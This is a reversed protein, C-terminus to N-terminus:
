GRQHHDGTARRHDEEVRGAGRTGRDARRGHHDEGPHTRPRNVYDIAEQGTMGLADAQDIMQQRMTDYRPRIQDMTQGQKLLAQVMAQVNGAQSAMTNLNTRGSEDFATMGTKGEKLAKAITDIGEEYAITAEQLSIFRGNLLDLSDILKDVETRATKAAESTDIFGSTAQERFSDWNIQNAERQMSQLASVVREKFWETNEAAVGTSESVEDIAAQVQETSAGTNLVKVDSTIGAIAEHVALEAELTKKAMADTQGTLNQWLLTLRPTSPNMIAMLLSQTNRLGIALRSFIAVLGGVVGTVWLVADGVLDMALEVRHADGFWEKMIKTVLPGMRDLLKSVGALAAQIGPMAEVVARGFTKAFGLASTTLM